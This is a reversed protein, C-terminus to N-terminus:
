RMSLIKPFFSLFLLCAIVIICVIHARPEMGNRDIEIEPLFLSDVANLKRNVSKYGPTSLASCKSNQLQQGIKITHM